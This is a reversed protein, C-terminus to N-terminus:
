TESLGRGSKAGRRVCRRRTLPHVVMGVFVKAVRRIVGKFATPCRRRGPRSRVNPAHEIAVVGVPLSASFGNIRGWSAGLIMGPINPPGNIAARVLFTCHVDPFRRM